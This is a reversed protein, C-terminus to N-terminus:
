EVFYETGASNIIGNKGAFTKVMLYDTGPVMKVDTYKPQVYTNNLFYFGKLTNEDSLVFGGNDYTIDAYGKSIVDHTQTDKVYAKGDKKYIVYIINNGGNVLSVNSNVPDIISQGNTNLLGSLGNKTVQLYQNSGSKMLKIASYDFPVITEFKTNFVGYSEGKKAIYYIEDSDAIKYDNEIKDFLGDNNPLSYTKQQVVTEIPGRNEAVSNEPIAPCKTLTAGKDNICIEYGNAQVSAGAFLISDGGETKGNPMFGKRFPKAVTFKAPIVLKGAKNIYGWKTGSKVAAFGESFWGVEDYKPTIVVNKSPNSFGWKDGTRYPILSVDMQQAMGNFAFGAILAAIFVIKKM